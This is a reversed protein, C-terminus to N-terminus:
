VVGQVIDHVNCQIHLINFTIAHDLKSSTLQCRRCPLIFRASVIAAMKPFVSFLALVLNKMTDVRTVLRLARFIRFARIVQTGELAWSLVVILLDVVLFGDKFLTWGHYLLQMGSEITFIVLFVQDVLEFNGRLKDNEEVLPLTAIGMMIANIVIFLLIFLQVTDNNVIKGSFKRAKNLPELWTPISIGRVEDLPEINEKFSDRLQAESQSQPLLQHQSGSTQSGSITSLSIIEPGVTHRREGNYSSSKSRRGSTEIEATVEVSRDSFGIVDTESCMFMEKNFSGSNDLKNTRNSSGRRSLAPMSSTLERRRESSDLGHGEEQEEPVRGSGKSTSCKVNRSSYNSSSQRTRRQRSAAAAPM